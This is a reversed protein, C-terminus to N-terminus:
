LPSSGLCSDDGEGLGDGMAGCGGSWMWPLNTQCLKVPSPVDGTVSSLCFVVAM